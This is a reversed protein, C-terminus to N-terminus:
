NSIKGKEVNGTLTTSVQFQLLDGGLWLVGGQTNLLITQLTEDAKLGVKNV